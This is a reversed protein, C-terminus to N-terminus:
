GARDSRGGSRPKGRKAPPASDAADARRATRRSALEDAKSMEKAPEGLAALDKVVARLQGAIQAKVAVDANDLAEFLQVRIRELDDRQTTSV